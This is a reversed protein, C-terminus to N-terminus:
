AIGMLEDEVFRTHIDGARFRADDLLRTHFPITTHVGEIRMESLARRMRAIAEDRNQGWAIVKAILSDYYPPIRYGEFLHTDIRIGPGGPLRLGRVQGPSPIFDRAPDEANIRCEIAHGTLRVNDQTIPLPEGQAVRIQAKVIDVGTVVETVPHEVQVRTNMEMFYFAGSAADLIFEITGVSRYDVERCVRVAADGMGARLAEDLAPSPSEEVLKQNRRQISCDREGLHLVTQGDALVQIEVHRVHELFKEVYIGGTGFAAQAERAAETFRAPLEDINRAVRMGRGGGGAAAKLLVPYGILAAAERATKADSVTGPSGPTIPVGAKAAMQRATAKDGMLAIARAPPGIFAINADECARAFAANESLFGYGPHIADAKAARAAGIVVDGKLYSQSSPSPGICISEDAMQVALSDRDAESYAQIAELGLERSARIIRVAIEGRNAVLIRRLQRRATTM